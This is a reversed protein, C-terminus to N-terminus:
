KENFIVVRDKGAQKALYLAQDAKKLMETFSRDQQLESVGASITFSARRSSAALTIRINDAIAKAKISDAGPFGILFEEGGWRAVIDTDRVTKLLMKSLYILARDGIDHGYQDNLIKFNDIDIILLSYQKPSLSTRRNAQNKLELIDNILPMAIDEFGRRNLLGTLHDRYVLKKLSALEEKLRDIEQQM